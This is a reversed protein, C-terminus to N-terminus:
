QNVRRRLSPSTALRVVRRAPVYVREGTTPNRALGAARPRATLTGLRHLRVQRGLALNERLRDVAYRTIRAAQAHSLIFQQAIDESLDKLNYTRDSM